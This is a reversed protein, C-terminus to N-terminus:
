VEKWEPAEFVFDQNIQKDPKGDLAKGSGLVARPILYNKVQGDRHVIQIQLNYFTSQKRQYWRQDHDIKLKALAGNIRAFMLKGKVGQPVSMKNVRGGGTIGKVGIINRDEDVEIDELHGLEEAAYRDGFNSTITVSVDQGVNFDTRGLFSAM